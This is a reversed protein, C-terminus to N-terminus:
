IGNIMWAESPITENINGTVSVENDCVYDGNVDPAYGTNAADGDMDIFAYGHYTGSVIGGMSVSANGTGPFVASASYLAPSSPLGGSAVLKMYVTKGAAGGSPPEATTTITYTTSGNGSAPNSKSCGTILLFISSICLFAVAHMRMVSGGRFHNYHPVFPFHRIISILSQPIM